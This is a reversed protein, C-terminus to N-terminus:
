RFFKYFYRKSLFFSYFKCVNLNPGYIQRYQEVEPLHIDAFQSEPPPQAPAAKKEAVM